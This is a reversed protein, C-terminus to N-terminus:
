KSALEALSRTTLVLDKEQIQARCVSLYNIAHALGVVAVEASQSIYKVAEDSSMRASALAVEKKVNELYDIFERIEHLVQKAEDDAAEWYDREIDGEM